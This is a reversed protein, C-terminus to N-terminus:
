GARGSAPKPPLQFFMLAVSIERDQDESSRLVFDHRDESASRGDRKFAPHAHAEQLSKKMISSLGAQRVFVLLAAKTDRWALYSLLQDIAKAFRKPGSWIKCEAIFVNRDDVRILIDTKGTRNFVEAAALGEFHGNLHFLLLDRIQEEGADAAITPNREFGNRLRQLVGLADEYHEEAMTPEPTFSKHTLGAAPRSTDIRRRSIPIVYSAADPRVRMPYGIEAQMQKDALHEQKRAAVAGPTEAALKENHHRIHGNLVAVLRAIEDITADFGARIAASERPGYDNDSTLRIEYGVIEVIPLASEAGRMQMRLLRADGEFPLAVTM